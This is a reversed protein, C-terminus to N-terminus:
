LEWEWGQEREKLLREREKERQRQEEHYRQWRQQSAMKSVTYEDTSWWGKFAEMHSTFGELVIRIDYALSQIIQVGRRTIQKKERNAMSVAKEVNKRMQLNIGATEPHVQELREISENYLRAAYNYAQAAIKYDERANPYIKKQTLFPSQEDQMRLQFGYSELLIQVFRNADYLYKKTKFKKDKVTYPPIDEYRPKGVKDYMIDGKRHALYANPAKAKALRHTDRDMWIDRQYTKHKRKLRSPKARQRESFLLHMHLNTRKKNWHVAYEFDRNYGLLWHSLKSCCEKLKNPNYALENPLAIVLERAENNREKSQQHSAEYEAYDEWTSRMNSVHLVLDEISKQRAREWAERTKREEMARRIYRSRGVANHCKSM